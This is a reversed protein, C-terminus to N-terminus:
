RGKNVLEQLAKMREPLTGKEYYAEACALCLGVPKSPHFWAFPPRRTSCDVCADDGDAVVEEDVIQDPPEVETTHVEDLRNKEEEARGKFAGMANSRKAQDFRCVDEPAAELLRNRRTPHRLKRLAKAEIQRVRESAVGFRQGVEELTSESKCGIGFRQSIVSRERPTLTELQENVRDALEKQELADCPDPLMMAEVQSELLAQVQVQDIEFGGSNKRLTTTMQKESWLDTPCAGLAEMVAKAEATFEGSLGIPAKRMAVLDNLTGANLGIARAFAAQTKYGAAEIATLIRNNRVTFRVRYDRIPLDAGFRDGDFNKMAPANM